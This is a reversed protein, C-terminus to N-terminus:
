DVGMVKTGTKENTPLTVAIQAMWKNSKQTIRLTGLTHTLLDVNRNDRDVLLARIPTKTVKGDMMMPMSIHTLKFMQDFSRNKQACCFYNVM